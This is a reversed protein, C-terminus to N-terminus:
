RTRGTRKRSASAQRQAAPPPAAPEHASTASAAALLLARSGSSRKLMATMRRSELLGQARKLYDPRYAQYDDKRLSAYNTIDSERVEVQAGSSGSANLVLATTEHQKAISDQCCADVDFHLTDPQSQIAVQIGLENDHELRSRLTTQARFLRALSLCADGIKESSAEHNFTEPRALNEEEKRMNAICAPGSTPGLPATYGVANSPLANFEKQHSRWPGADIAVYEQREESWVGAHTLNYFTQYAWAAMMSDLYEEEIRGELSDEGQEARRARVQAAHQFLSRAQREADAQSHDPSSISLGDRYGIEAVVESLAHTNALANTRSPSTYGVILSSQLDRGLWTRPDSEGPAATRSADLIRHIAESGPLANMDFDDSHQASPTVSHAM